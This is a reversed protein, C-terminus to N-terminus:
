SKMFSWVPKYNWAGWCPLFNKFEWVIWMLSLLHKSEHWLCKMLSSLFKKWKVQVTLKKDALGNVQSKDQFWFFLSAVQSSRLFVYKSGARTLDILCNNIENIQYQMLNCSHAILCSRTIIWTELCSSRHKMTLLHGTAYQQYIGFKHVFVRPHPTYCYRSNALKQILIKYLIADTRLGRECSTSVAESVSLIGYSSSSFPTWGGLVLRCCWCCGWGAPGSGYENAPLNTDVAAAPNAVENACPRHM